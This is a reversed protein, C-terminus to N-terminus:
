GYRTEAAQAGEARPLRRGFPKGRCFRCANARATFLDPNQPRASGYTGLRWPVLSPPSPTTTVVSANGM